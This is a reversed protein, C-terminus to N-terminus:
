GENKVAELIQPLTPRCQHTETFRYIVTRIMKEDFQDLDSKSRPKEITKRPSSFTAGEPKNKGKKIIRKVTSLSVGTATAVRERLNSLPIVPEGEEKKRKM